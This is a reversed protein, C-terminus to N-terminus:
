RLEASREAGAVGRVGTTPAVVSLFRVRARSTEAHCLRTVAARTM